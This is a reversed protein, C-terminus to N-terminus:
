TESKNDDTSEAADEKPLNEDSAPAADEETILFQTAFKTLQEILFEDAGSAELKDLMDAVKVVDEPKADECIGELVMAEDVYGAEYMENILYGVSQPDTFIASPSDDLLNDVIETAVAEMASGGITKGFIGNHAQGMEFDALKNYMPNTTQDFPWIVSGVMEGALMQRQLGGKIYMDNNDPTTNNRDGSTFAERIIKNAIKNPNMYSEGDKFLSHFQDKGSPRVKNGKTMWLEAKRVDQKTVGGPNGIMDARPEVDVPAPNGKKPNFTREKPEWKKVDSAGPATLKYEFILNLLSRFISDHKKYGAKARLAALTADDVKRKVGQPEDKRPKDVDVAVINRNTKDGSGGQRGQLLNRTIQGANSGYGAPRTPASIFKTDGHAPHNVGAGGRPHAIHSSHSGRQEPPLDMAAPTFSHKSARGLCAGNSGSYGCVGTPAPQKKKGVNDPYSTGSKSHGATLEGVDPRVNDPPNDNEKPLDMGSYPILGFHKKILHASPIHSAAIKAVQKAAHAAIREKAISATKEAALAPAKALDASKTGPAGPYSSAKRASGAIRPDATYGKNRLKPM